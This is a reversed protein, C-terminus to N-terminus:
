KMLELAMDAASNLADVIRWRGKDRDGAINSIGRVIGLPLGALQAAMAVSFGEMDEAIAAPFLQRRDRVDKASAAASCVTLLQRPESPRRDAPWLSIVDNIVPTSDSADYPTWHAWGMQGATLFTDGSGAGIGYVAVEDILTASGTALDSSFSGAIGILLLQKPKHKEILYSTRAAAAIPGFGCLDMVATRGDIVERMREFLVQGEGATPVIILTRPM